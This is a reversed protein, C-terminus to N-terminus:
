KAKKTDISQSKFFIQELSKCGVFNKRVKNTKKTYFSTKPCGMKKFFEKPV